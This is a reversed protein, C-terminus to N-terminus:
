GIKGFNKWKQYIESLYRHCDIVSRSTEGPLSYWGHLQLLVARNLASVNRAFVDDNFENYYDRAKRGHERLANLGKIIGAPIVNRDLVTEGREKMISEVIYMLEPDQEELLLKVVHLTGQIRGYSHYAELKRHLEM